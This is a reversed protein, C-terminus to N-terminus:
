TQSSRRRDDPFPLPTTVADLRPAEVISYARITAAMAPPAAAIEIVPSPAATEPAKWCTISPNWEFRGDLLSVPPPLEPVPPGVPEAVDVEVGLGDPRGVGEGV